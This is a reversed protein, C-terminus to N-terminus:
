SCHARTDTVPLSYRFPWNPDLLKGRLPYAERDGSMLRERHRRISEPIPIGISSGAKKVRNRYRGADVYLRQELCMADAHDGALVEDCTSCGVKPEETATDICWAETGCKRCVLREGTDLLTRM